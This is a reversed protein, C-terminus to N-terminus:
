LEVLWDPIKRLLKFHNCSAAKVSVRLWLIQPSSFTAWELLRFARREITPKLLASPTSGFTAQKHIYDCKGSLMGVTLGSLYISDM